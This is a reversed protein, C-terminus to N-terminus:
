RSFRRRVKCNLVARKLWKGPSSKMEIETRWIDRKRSTKRSERKKDVM